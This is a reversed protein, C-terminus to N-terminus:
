LPSSETHLLMQTHNRTLFLRNPKSQQCSSSVVHGLIGESFLEVERVDGGAPQKSSDRVAAPRQATIPHQALGPLWGPDLHSSLHLPGM